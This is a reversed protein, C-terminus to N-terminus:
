DLGDRYSYFPNDPGRLSKRQEADLTVGEKKVLDVARGTWDCKDCKATNPNEQGPLWGMTTSWTEGNCKPCFRKEENEM